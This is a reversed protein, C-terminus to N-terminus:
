TIPRGITRQGTPWFDYFIVIMTEKMLSCVNPTFVLIKKGEFSNASRAQEQSKSTESDSPLTEPTRFTVAALESAIERAVASNLVRFEM